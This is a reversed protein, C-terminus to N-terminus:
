EAAELPNCIQCAHLEGGVEVAYDQAEQLTMAGYKSYDTSTPNQQRAKGCTTRHLVLYSPTPERYSNVVFGAPNADLWAFYGTDDDRFPM